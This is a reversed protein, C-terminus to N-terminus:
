YRGGGLRDPWMDKFPLQHFAESANAWDLLREVKRQGQGVGRALVDVMSSEFPLWGLLANSRPGLGRFAAALQSGLQNSESTIVTVLEEM